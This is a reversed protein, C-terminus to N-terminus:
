EKSDIENFCDDCIWEGSEPHEHNEYQECWWGCNTCQFIRSDIESFHEDNLNEYLLNHRDLISDLSECTGTLSDIIEDIDIEKAM